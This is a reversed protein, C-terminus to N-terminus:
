NLIVISLNLIAAFTVWAIYPVLLWSASKHIKKFLLITYLIVGWLLLIVAFASLPMHLGFFTFSWLFNLFLQILFVRMALRKLKMKEGAVEKNWVQYFAVAMLFYLITWVPGFVFDPPNFPPKQLTQYWTSIAPITVASGSISIGFCLVLSLIFKLANM